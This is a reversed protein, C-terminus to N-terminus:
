GGTLNHSRITRRQPTKEMETIEKGWDLAEVLLFVFDIFLLIFVGSM